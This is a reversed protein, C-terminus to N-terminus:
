TGRTNFFKGNLPVHVTIKATPLYGCFRLVSLYFQLGDGIFKRAISKSTSLVITSIIFAESLFSRDGFSQM